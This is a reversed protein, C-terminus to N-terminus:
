GFSPKGGWYGAGKRFYEPEIPKLCKHTKMAFPDGNYMYRALV